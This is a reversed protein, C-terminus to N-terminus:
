GVRKMSGIRNDFRRLDAYQGERFVRCTGEYGPQTCVEWTGEHIVMSSAQQDFGRRALSDIDRDVPVRRGSFDRGDFLEVVPGGGNRNDAYRDGYRSGQWANADNRAYNSVERASEVRHNFRPDLAGYEGRDLTTCDGQFNPQTCLQWRGSRIQVSSAQDQFGRGSLDQADGRLTLAEGAFNPQKFITMEAAQAAGAALMAVLLARTRWKRNAHM